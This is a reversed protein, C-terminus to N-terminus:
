APEEEDAGERDGDAGRGYAQDGGAPRGFARDQDGTVHTLTVRDDQGRRRVLGNQNIGSGLGCRDVRAKAPETDAGQRQQHQRVQVGVVDASEGTGNMTAADSRDGHPREVLWGTALARDAFLRATQRDKLDASAPGIRAARQIKVDDARAVQQGAGPGIGVVVAQEDTRGAVTDRDQQGAVGLGLLLVVKHRRQIGSHQPSVHELDSVVARRVLVFRQEALNIGHDGHDAHPGAVRVPM